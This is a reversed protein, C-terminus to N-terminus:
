YIQALQNSRFEYLKVAGDTHRFSLITHRPASALNLVRVKFPAGLLRAVECESQGTQPASSSNQSPKASLRPCTDITAQADSQASGQGEAIVPRARLEAIHRDELDLALGEESIGDMGLAAPSHQKRGNKKPDHPVVTPAVVRWSAVRYTTTEQRPREGQYAGTVAPQQVSSCGGALLGVLAVVAGGLLLKM